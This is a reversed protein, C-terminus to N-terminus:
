IDFFDFEDVQLNFLEGNRNNYEYIFQKYAGDLLINMMNQLHKEKNEETLHKIKNFQKETSDCLHGIRNTKKSDELDHSLVKILKEPATSRYELNKEKKALGLTEFGYILIMCIIIFAAMITPASWNKKRISNFKKTAKNVYYM